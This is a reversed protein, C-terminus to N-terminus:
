HVPVIHEAEWSQFYDDSGVIQGAGDAMGYARALKGTGSIWCKKSRVVAVAMRPVNTLEDFSGTFVLEFENTAEPSIHRSGMEEQIQAFDSPCQNLTKM